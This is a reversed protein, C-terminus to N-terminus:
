SHSKIIKKTYFALINNFKDILFEVQTPETSLRYYIQVIIKFFDNPKIWIIGESISEKELKMSLHKFNDICKNIDHVLNYNVCEVVLKRISDDLM